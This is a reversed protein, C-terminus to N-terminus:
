IVSRNLECESCINYSCNINFESCLLLEKERDSLENSNVIDSMLQVEIIDSLPVDM